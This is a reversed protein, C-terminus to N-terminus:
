QTNSNFCDRSIKWSGDPQKKFVTLYKGDYKMTQGSARVKATFTYTGRAFGLDGCAEAEELKISFEEYELAELGGRIRKELAEIGMAAPAGPAMKVVDEAHIALFLDPDGNTLAESYKEWTEEVARRFADADTKAMTACGTMLLPLIVLLGVLVIATQKKM